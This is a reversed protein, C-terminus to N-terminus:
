VGSGEIRRSLSPLGLEECAVRPAGLVMCSCCGVATLSSPLLSSFLALAQAALAPLVSTHQTHTHHTHTLTHTHTRITHTHSHTHSYTLTHAYPTLTHTHTHTHTHHSHTLTHTLSHTHTNQENPTCHEGQKRKRKKSYQKPPLLGNVSFTPQVKYM